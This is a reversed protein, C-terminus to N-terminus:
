EAITSGRYLNCRQLAESLELLLFNTQIADPGDNKRIDGHRWVRSRFKRAAEQALNLAAATKAVANGDAMGGTVLVDVSFNKAARTLRKAEDTM